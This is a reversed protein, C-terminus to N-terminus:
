ISVRDKGALKAEYTKREATELLSEASVNKEYLGIGITASIKAPGMCHTDGCHAPQQPAIDERAVNCINQSLQLSEERGSKPLIIAFEDGAVRFLSDQNVLMPRVLEVFRKLLQDGVLHGNHNNFRKMNDIDVYLLAFGSGTKSAENIAETLRVNFANRNLAGTLSDRDTM